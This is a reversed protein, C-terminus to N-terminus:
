ETSGHKQSYWDVFCDLDVRCQADEPKVPWKKGNGDVYPEPQWGKAMGWLRKQADVDGNKMAVYLSGITDPNKLYEDRKMGRRPVTIIASAIDEPLDSDVSQQSEEQPPEVSKYILEILATLAAKSTPVHELKWGSLGQTGSELWGWKFFTAEVALPDITTSTLQNIAWERTKETATGPLVSASTAAPRETAPQPAPKQYTRDNSVPYERRANQPRNQGMNRRKWEECFGKMWPQLGVGFEKCCRRFANSKAKELTDAYSDGSNEKYFIADAIAEGVVCGRVLLVMDVYVRAAHKERNDKMYTFEESWERRRIPVAAGVGLVQNLRQRLYSHSLYLLNKDGGAGLEFAEDPFDAALAASEEPTLRLTSANKYAADLTDAISENRAETPTIVRLEAPHLSKNVDAVVVAQSETPPDSIETTM